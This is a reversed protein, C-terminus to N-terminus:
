IGSISEPAKREVLDDWGQRLSRGHVKEIRIGLSMLFKYPMEAGAFIFLYDNPVTMDRGERNVGLSRAEISSVQSNFWIRLRGEEALRTVIERNEENCRDFGAGRILLTVENEYKPRSLYQAAEVASNGGGVVAIKKGQYQEPDLLNYTVKTSEENKIGLKRPSGRVGMCLLVKRARINGRSTRVDFYGEARTVNEFRVGEQIKLGTKRRIENWYALLDEKSVKDRKFKMRGVIPFDAPYTMVVKQRPFTVISGGFSGQDICVYKKKEAIATLAASLGAPGAGVILLDTDVPEGGGQLNRAAHLAALHGQKIANRILGMGGLEGAIYLGPINSEYNTTIRPIDMGRTRTGFVLSIAGTPCATECEGHGVCKTPSVLVAKHDIIRLIDGEPCVRTCAGCGACLAPDVQPHLTLPEDMRSSIAKELIKRALRVQRSRTVIRWLAFLGFLLAVVLRSYDILIDGLSLLTDPM